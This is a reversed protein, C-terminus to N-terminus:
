QGSPHVFSSWKGANCSTDKEQYLCNCVFVAVDLGNKSCLSLGRPLDRYALTQDRTETKKRECGDYLM